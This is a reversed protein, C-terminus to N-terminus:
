ERIGLKQRAERLESESMQRPEYVKLSSFTLDGRDGHVLWDMVAKPPRTIFGLSGLGGDASSASYVGLWQWRLTKPDITAAVCGSWGALNWPTLSWIRLVGSGDAGLPKHIGDFRFRIAGRVVRGDTRDSRILWVPAGWAPLTSCVDLNLPSQTWPQGPPHIRLAAWDDSLVQPDFYSRKQKPVNVPNGHAFQVINAPQDNFSVSEAPFGRWTRMALFQHLTTVVRNEVQICQAEIPTGEATLTLRYVPPPQEPIRTACGCLVMVVVTCTFAQVM